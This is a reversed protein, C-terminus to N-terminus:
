NGRVFQLFSSEAAGLVEALRGKAISHAYLSSIYTETATALAEQAQVVEINSAVGASFRDQAQDLQDRALTVSSSAVKVSDDASQLNLFATQVEYYIRGRLDEAEARRQKLASDAELVRAQVQGGQFIPIRLSAAVTFDGHSQGPAPGNVGFDAVGRLSPLKEAEAAKKALEAARVQALAAQYDARDRYARQVADDLIMPAFAAYQLTDTPNFKQGLPLGVAQALNLKETEFENQAVILRQQQAQLEVQARVVEIGPVVGAKRLDVALDYLALATNVQVHAAEIRSNGAVALLYLGGCVFVVRDRIGQYSLEAARSLETASRVDNITKLNFIDQTLFLRVDFVSFPGVVTPIGPFSGFGMAMLNIQQETESIGATLNPLLRSRVLQRAGQATRIGEQGLVGALNYKLGREVAEALTLPIVDATPKGTPIGGFAPDLSSINVRSPAPGLAQAPQGQSGPGQSVAEQAFLGGLGGALLLCFVVVKSMMVRMARCTRELDSRVMFFWRGSHQHEILGAPLSADSRPDCRPTAFTVAETRVKRIAKREMAEKLARMPDSLQQLYLDQFHEQSYAPHRIGNVKGLGSIHHKQAAVLIGLWPYSFRAATKPKIM